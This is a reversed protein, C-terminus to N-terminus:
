RRPDGDRGQPGVRGTGAERVDKCAAQTLQTDTPPEQGKRYREIGYGQPYAIRDTNVAPDAALKRPSPSGTWAPWACTSRM